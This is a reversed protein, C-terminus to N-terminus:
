HRRGKGVGRLRIEVFDAPYSTLLKPFKPFYGVGGGFCFGGLAFYFSSFSTTCTASGPLYLLM